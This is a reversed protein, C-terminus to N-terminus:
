FEYYLVIENNLTACKSFLVPYVNTQHLIKFILNEYLVKKKFTNELRIYKPKLYWSIQILRNNSKDYAKSFSYLFM